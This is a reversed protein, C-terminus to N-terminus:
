LIVYDLTDMLIYFCIVFRTNLTNKSIINCLTEKWNKHSIM